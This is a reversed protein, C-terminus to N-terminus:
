VVMTKHVNKARVEELVEAFSMCDMGGDVPMSASVLAHLVLASQADVAVQSM